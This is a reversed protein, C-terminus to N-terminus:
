QEFIQCIICMTGSTAIDNLKNQEAPLTHVYYENSGSCNPEGTYWMVSDWSQRPLLNDSRGYRDWAWRATCSNTERRLAVWFGSACPASGAVTSM